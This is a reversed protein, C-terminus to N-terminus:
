PVNCATALVDRYLRRQRETMLMHNHWLLVFTGGYTKCRSALKKCCQLVDEETMRLYSLMSSEMVVLPRELLPLRRGCRFDWVPFSRATACRFGPREAYGVSSDYSLGANAWELWSSGPEWRLYHHRGGIESQRVGAKDMAIALAHFQRAISGPSLASDFAAHLGIQHGRLGIRRMLDQVDPQMVDYDPDLPHEQPGPVFYFHSALGRRESERMLFNFTNYPDSSDLHLGRAPRAAWARKLALMPDRRRVLDAGCAVVLDKIPRGRNRLADVDHTVRVEYAPTAMSVGPWLSEIRGRLSVVARDIFPDAVDVHGSLCSSQYEFRNFQDRNENVLEEYRSLMFFTAGLVDFNLSVHETSIPVDGAFIAPLDDPANKVGSKRPRILVRLSKPTLWADRTASFFVDPLVLSRASQSDSDRLRWWTGHWTRPVVDMGLFSGFIVECAYTRESERGSPMDLIFTM